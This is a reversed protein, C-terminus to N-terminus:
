KNELNEIVLLAQEITEVPIIVGAGCVYISDKERIIKPEDYLNFEEGDSFRLM